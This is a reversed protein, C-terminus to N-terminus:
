WRIEYEDQFRFVVHDHLVSSELMALAALRNGITLDIRSPNADSKFCTNDPDGGSRIASAQALDTWTGGEIAATLTPSDAPELNFDGSVM